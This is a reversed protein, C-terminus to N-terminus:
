SKPEAAAQTELSAWVTEQQAAPLAVLKAKDNDTIRLFLQQRNPPLADFYAKTATPWSDYAAQQEATLGASASSPAAASDAPPASEVTEAPTPATSDAPATTETSVPATPDSPPTTTPPAMPDTPPRQTTAAEPPTATDQAMAPTAALALTAFPLTLFYRM